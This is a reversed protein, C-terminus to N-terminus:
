GCKLVDGYVGLTADVMRDATFQGLIRQRARETRDARVADLDMAELIAAALAQSDGPPVTWAVPEAETNPGGVLDSIGGATTTVIPCGALMAEMLTVPLAESLSPLVFLDAAALLDPVDDRHGLFRVHSDVGMERAQAELSTRLPGDGALVLQVDPRQQVVCKTADLLYAHGKCPVLQAVTLLVPRGDHIGPLGLAARGRDRDGRQWPGADIGGHVVRIMQPPIGSERCARAAAHSVCLLRDCFTRYRFTWRIPFCLHRVAVRAGIGLGVSALGAATVAHPDNYHLVDPRLRRLATRIQWFAVPNRGNGCFRFVEFGEAAMRRGFQGGTRAFIAVRHGRQRLGRALLAGQEEGGHWLRQTCVLAVTLCRGAENAPDSAQAPGVRLPQQFPGM